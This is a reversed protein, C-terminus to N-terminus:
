NLRETVKVIPQARDSLPGNWMMPTRPVESQIFRYLRLSNLSKYWVRGHICSEWRTVKAVDSSKTRPTHRHFLSGEETQFKLIAKCSVPDRGRLLGWTEDLCSRRSVSFSDHKPVTLVVRQVGLLFVHWVVSGRIVWEWYGVQCLPSNLSVFELNLNSRCLRQGLFGKM